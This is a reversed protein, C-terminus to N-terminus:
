RSFRVCMRDIPGVLAIADADPDFGLGALAGVRHSFNWRKQPIGRSASGSTFLRVSRGNGVAHVDGATMAFREDDVQLGEIVCEELSCLSDLNSLCQLFAKRSDALSLGTGDNYEFGASFLDIKHQILPSVAIADRFIRNVQLFRGHKTFKDV